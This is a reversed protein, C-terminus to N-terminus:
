KSFRRLYTQIRISTPIRKSFSTEIAINLSIRVFDLYPFCSVDFGRVALYIIEKRRENEFVCASIVSILNFYFKYAELLPKRTGFPGLFPVPQINLSTRM